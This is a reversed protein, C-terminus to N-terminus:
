VERGLLKTAISKAIQDARTRLALKAARASTEIKDRAAQVKAESEGRAKALLDSAQQEGEGRLGTRVSAAEKKATSVQDEYRVLDEDARANDRQAEDKAGDINESRERLLALYPRFVLKTLIILLVIFIGFQVFLTGDIDILPPPEHGESVLLVFWTKM